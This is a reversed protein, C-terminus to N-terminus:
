DRRGFRAGYASTFCLAATFISTAAMAGQADGIIAGAIVANVWAFVILAAIM